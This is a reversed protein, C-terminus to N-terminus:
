RRYRVIRPIISRVFGCSGIQARSLKNQRRTKGITPDAFDGCQRHHPRCRHGGALTPATRDGSGFLRAPQDRHSSAVRSPIAEGVHPDFPAVPWDISRCDQHFPAAVGDLVLQVLKLCNCVMPGCFRRSVGFSRRFIFISCFNSLHTM